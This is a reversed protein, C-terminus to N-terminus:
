PKLLQADGPQPLTVSPRPNPVSPSPSVTPKPINTESGNSFSELLVAILRDRQTRSLRGIAARDGKLPNTKLTDYSPYVSEEQFENAGLYDAITLKWDLRSLPSRGKLFVHYRILRAVLTNKEAVKGTERSIYQNELPLNPLKVYVQQWVGETNGIQASAL